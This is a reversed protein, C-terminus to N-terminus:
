FEGDIILFVWFWYYIIGNNWYELKWVVIMDLVKYIVIGM